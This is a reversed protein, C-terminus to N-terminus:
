SYATYDYPTETGALDNTVCFEVTATPPEGEQMAEPIFSKMFGIFDITDGNPLHATIWGNVGCLALCQDYSAGLYHVTFSGDTFDKLARPAYTRWTVNHMDTTPIKEGVDIGPLTVEKEWLKVDPDAAFAILTRFGDKLKNGTPTTRATTTM